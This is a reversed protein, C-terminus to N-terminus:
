RREEVRVGPNARRAMRRCWWHSLYGQGSEGTIRNNGARRRWRWRGDVARYVEVHGGMRRVGRTPDAFRLQVQEVTLPHVAQAAQQMVQHPVEVQGLAPM